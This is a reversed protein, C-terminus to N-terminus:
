RGRDNEHMPQNGPTYEKVRQDAYWHQVGDRKRQVKLAHLCFAPLLDPWDTMSVDGGSVRYWQLQRIKKDDAKESKQGRAESKKPKASTTFSFYTWEGKPDMHKRLLNNDYELTSYHELFPHFQLGWTQSPESITWGEALRTDIDEPPFAQQQHARELIAWSFIRVAITMDLLRLEFDRHSVRCGSGCMNSLWFELTAWTLQITLASAFRSSWCRAASCKSRRLRTAVKALKVALRGLLAFGIIM